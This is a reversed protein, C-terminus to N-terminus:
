SKSREADSNSDPVPADVQLATEVTPYLWIITVNPNDTKKPVAIVDANRAFTVHIAQAVESAPPEAAAHPATDVPPRSMWRQSILIGMLVSAALLGGAVTVFRRRRSRQIRREVRDVLSPSVIMVHSSLLRDICAQAQLERQCHACETLHREFAAREPGSLWKGLFGDILDCMASTM